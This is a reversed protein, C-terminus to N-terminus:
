LRERIACLLAAYDDETSYGILPDGLVNEIFARQTADVERAQAETEYRGAPNYPKSRTLWVDFYRVDHHEAESRARVASATVANAVLPSCYRQAYYAGILVSSDTVIVDVKGHLQSEARLQKGFFYFQDLPGIKRGEWAWGKVYERVLEANVGSMKLKAFLYAAGTSKGTGPGGYLNVVLTM